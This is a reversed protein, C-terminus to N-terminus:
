DLGDMTLLLQEWGTKKHNINLGYVDNIYGVLDRRTGESSFSGLDDVEGNYSVVILYPDVDSPKYVYDYKDDYVNLKGEHILRMMRKDDPKIRTICLPKKDVNYMMITTLEKNRLKLNYFTSYSSSLPHELYVETKTLMILGKITDKKYVIYGDASKSVTIIHKAFGNGGNGGGGTNPTSVPRADKWGQQALIPTSCLLLLLLQTSLIRISM